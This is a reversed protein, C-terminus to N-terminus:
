GTAKLTAPNSPSQFMNGFRKRTEEVVASRLLTQYQNEWSQAKAPDDSQSGFDRQYASFFVMSAAVYLDPFQQTLFNSYNTPSLQPVRMTGVVEFGYAQDPAPGVLVSVQDNISWQVPLIGVGVSADDPWAYDLYDRTVFELPPLKAGNVIPRIQSAVIYIGNGIITATADATANFSANVTFNDADVATIIQYVGGLTLGGVPVPTLISVNEGQGVTAQYGPWYINVIDSGNTTTIVSGAPVPTGILEPIQGVSPLDVSPLVLIRSNPTMVGTSATTITAIFDLDRQLRNETYDISSPIIANFADVDTPTASTPDSVQYELLSCIASIWDSYNM